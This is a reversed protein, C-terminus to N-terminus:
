AAKRTHLKATTCFTCPYLKVLKHAGVFYNLNKRQQHRRLTLLQLKRTYPLLSGVIEGTMYVTFTVRGIVYEVNAKFCVTTVQPKNQCEHNSVLQM